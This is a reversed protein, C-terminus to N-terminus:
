RLIDAEANMTLLHAKLDGQQTSIGPDVDAHFNGEEDRTLMSDACALSDLNAPFCRVPARFAAVPTAHQSASPANSHCLFDGGDQRWTSM